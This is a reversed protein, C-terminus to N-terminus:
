TIRVLSTAPHKRLVVHNSKKGGIRRMNGIRFYLNNEWYHLLLFCQQIHRKLLKLPDKTPLPLLRQRPSSVRELIRRPWNCRRM